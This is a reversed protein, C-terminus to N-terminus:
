RVKIRLYVQLEPESTRFLLSDYKQFNSSGKVLVRVDNFRLLPVVELTGQVNLDNSTSRGSYRMGELKGHLSIRRHVKRGEATVTYVLFDERYLEIPDIAVLVPHRYKFDGHTEIYGGGLNLFFFNNSFSGIKIGSWGRAGLSLRSFDATLDVIEFVDDVDEGEIFSGLGASFKWVRRDVSVDLFNDNRRRGEDYGQVFGGAVHLRSDTNSITAEPAINIRYIVNKGWPDLASGLNLNGERVRRVHVTKRMPVIPIDLFVVRPRKAIVTTQQPDPNSVLSPTPEQPPAKAWGPFETPATQGFVSYAALVLFLLVLFLIRLM